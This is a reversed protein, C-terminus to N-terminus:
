TSHLDGIRAGTNVEVGGADAIQLDGTREPAANVEDRPTSVKGACVILQDSLIPRKKPIATYM